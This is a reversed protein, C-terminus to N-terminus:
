PTSRAPDSGPGRERHAQAWLDGPGALAGAGDRPTALKVM